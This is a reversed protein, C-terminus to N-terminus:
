WTVSRGSWCVVLERSPESAVADALAEVVPPADLAWSSSERYSLYRRTRLGQDIETKLVSIRESSNAAALRVARAVDESREAADVLLRRVVDSDLRAVTEEWPEDENRVRAM